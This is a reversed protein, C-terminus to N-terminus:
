RRKGSIFGVPQHDLRLAVPSEVVSEGLSEGGLEGNRNRPRSALCHADVMGARPGIQGSSLDEFSLRRDAGIPLWIQRLPDELHWSLTSTAVKLRRNKLVDRAFRERRSNPFCFLLLKPLHATIAAEDYDVMKNRLRGLNETGRDLEFFFEVTGTPTRVASVSDPRVVRQCLAASAAEGLWSTVALNKGERGAYILRCFFENLDHTHRLRQSDVLNLPRNKRFYLKEADIGRVDSVVEAGLHDLIYHWPWSSPRRPPRFRNLIGLQFLELLRVRARAYSSFHLQFLQTTTLFRHDFIDLCIDLDRQTLHSLVSVSDTRYRRLSISRTQDTVARGSM